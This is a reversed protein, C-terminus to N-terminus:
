SVIWLTSRYAFQLIKRSVRGMMFEGVATRGRRGLVITDYGGKTAKKIIAAARSQQYTLIESSIQEESFGEEKLRRKAENMVPVIKRQNAAIWNAEHKPAFLEKAGMQQVSLPRIVHCLLIECEAPDLLAGACRVAKMSGTSGDMAIIIKKSKTNEGVVIISPHAVVDVLKSAVSGLTIDGIKTIGTRGVVLTDYNQQSEALIDRAVGSRMIQTKVSIAEKHFGSSTLIDCALTMFEDIFEQQRTKWLGLPYNEKEIVSDTGVDRFTEPAETMVHFLVIEAQKSLVKGLYVSATFSRESGDIALLIRSIKKM